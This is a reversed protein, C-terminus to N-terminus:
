DFPNDNTFGGERPVKGATPRTKTPRVKTTAPTHPPNLVEALALDLNVDETYQIRQAQPLYGKAAVRVVHTGTSREVEAEYPNGVLRGDVQILAQAPTARIVLRVKEPLAPQPPPAADGVAVPPAAADGAPAADPALAADAAHAADPALAADPRAGAGAGADVTPALAAADREAPPPTNVAALTDREGPGSEAGEERGMSMTVLYIVLGVGVIGLVVVVPWLSRSSSTKPLDDGARVATAPRPKPKAAAPGRPAAAAAAKREPASKKETRAAPAAAEAKKPAPAPPAAEVAPEDAGPREAAFMKQTAAFKKSKKEPEAKAEPEPEPAPAAPPQEPSPGPAPGAEAPPPAAPPPEAAPAPAAEAVAAPAAEAVAAPAAEPVTVAPPPMIAPARPPEAEATAAVPAPAVAPGPAVSDAKPPPFSVRKEGKALPPASVSPREGVARALAAEFASADQYRRPPDLSLAKMLVAELLRDVDKRAQRVPTPALPKGTSWDPSPGFPPEGTLMQHLICATAWLDAREDIEDGRALEPAFYPSSQSTAEPGLSRKIHAEGFDVLKPQLKAGGGVSEGGVLFVDGPSLDLNAVGARHAAGLGDLIMRAIRVADNIALPGEELVEVLSAGELHERVVLPAGGVDRGTAYVKAICPHDTRGAKEAEALFREVAETDRAFRPHLMKAAYRRHVGLEERELELVAGVPGEGLFNVVRYGDLLV